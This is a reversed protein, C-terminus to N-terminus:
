RPLSGDREHSRPIGGGGQQYAYGDSRQLRVCYRAGIDADRRTGTAITFAGSAKAAMRGVHVQQGRHSLEAAWVVQGSADNVLALGTTRSGPDIKLRLPTISICVGAKLIITFPARRLV